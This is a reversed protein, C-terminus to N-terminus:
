PFNLLIIRCSNRLNGTVSLSLSQKRLRHSPPVARLVPRPSLGLSLSSLSLSAPIKRHGQKLDAWSITVEWAGRWSSEVLLGEGGGWGGREWGVVEKDRKM